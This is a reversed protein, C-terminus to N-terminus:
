SGSGTEYNPTGVVNKIRTELEKEDPAFHELVTAMITTYGERGARQILAEAQLKTRPTQVPDGDIEALYLLPNLAGMYTTNAALDPGVAEMIRFEELFDPRRLGLKRGKGDTVYVLQSAAKVAKQSPTESHVTVKAM